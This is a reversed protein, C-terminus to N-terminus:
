FKALPNSASKHLYISSDILQILNFWGNDQLRPTIILRLLQFTLQTKIKTKSGPCMKINITIWDQWHDALRSILKDGVTVCHPWDM